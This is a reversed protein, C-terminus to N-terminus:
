FILEILACVAAPSFRRSHNKVKEPPFLGNAVPKIEEFSSNKYCLFKFHLRKIFM